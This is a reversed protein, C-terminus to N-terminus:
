YFMGHAFIAKANIAAVFWDSNYVTNQREFVPLYWAHRGQGFVLYDPTLTAMGHKIGEGENDCM